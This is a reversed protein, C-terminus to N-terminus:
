PTIMWQMTKSPVDILAAGATVFGPFNNDDTLHAALSAVKPMHSVLVIVDNDGAHELPQLAQATTGQDLSLPTHVEVPGTFGTVQVLTEATQVARVLPSTYVATWTIGTAAIEKGVAITEARGEPTLWRVADTDAYAPSVAAGHRVILAKM